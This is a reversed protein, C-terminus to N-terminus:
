FVSKLKVRLYQAYVKQHFADADMTAYQNEKSALLKFFVFAGGLDKFWTGEISYCIQSYCLMDKISCNNQIEVKYELM